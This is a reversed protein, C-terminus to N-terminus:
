FRELAWAATKKVYESRDELLGRLKEESAPLRVGRRDALRGLAWAAMGRVQSSEDNLMSSLCDAQDTGGIALAAMEGIAWAANERTEEDADSCLSTVSELPYDSPIKNQAFKAVLWLAKKRTDSDESSLLTGLESPLPEIWEKRRLQGELEEMADFVTARDSSRLHELVIPPLVM